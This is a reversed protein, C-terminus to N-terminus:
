YKSMSDIILQIQKKMVPIDKEVVAWVEDPDIKFYAHVLINRMAIIERWPVDKHVERLSESLTSAAEGIILIQQAMWSQVLEDAFFHDRGKKVYKEIREIAELIDLLRERDSRM